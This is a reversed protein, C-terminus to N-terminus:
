RFWVRLSNGWHTAYDDHWANDDYDSTYSCIGSFVSATDDDDRMHLNGGASYGYHSLTMGGMHTADGNFAITGLSCNQLMDVDSCVLSPQDDDDFWSQFGVPSSIQKFWSATQGMDDEAFIEFQVLTTPGIAGILRYAGHSALGDNKIPLPTSLKETNIVTGFWGNPEPLGDQDAPDVKAILTWGGTEEMRCYADFRANGGVGDPDITYVGSVDVGVDYLANCARPDDCQGTPGCFSSACDSPEGGCGSGNPCPACSPGGCDVDTEEGNM